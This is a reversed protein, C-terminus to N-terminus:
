SSIEAKQSIHNGYLDLTVLSDDVEFILEDGVRQRFRVTKEPKFTFFCYLSLDGSVIRFSNNIRRLLFHTGDCSIPIVELVNNISTVCDGYFNYHALINSDLILEGTRTKIVVMTPSYIITLM